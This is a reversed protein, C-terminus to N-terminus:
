WCAPSCSRRGHEAGQDPQGLRGPAAHEVVEGLFLHDARQGRGGAGAGRRRPRRPARRRDRRAPVHIRHVSFAPDTGFDAACGVGVLHGLHAQGVARRDVVRYLDDMRRHAGAGGGADVGAPHQVDARDRGLLGDVLYIVMSMWAAPVHIFIIRYSDGQQHDTPALLLGIYLGLVTLLVALGAFWPVAKGALPYFRQPAAFRTWSNM